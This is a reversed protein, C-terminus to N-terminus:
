PTLVINRLDGKIASEINKSIETVLRKRSEISAWGIHPTIILNKANLLRNNLEPPEKEMVDLAAGAIIENDLAHRLDEEVIIPGRAMNILFGDSKMKNLFSKNVLNKSFETLPMHISIIDSNALLDNLEYRKINDKYEVNKRKLAFINMGFAQCLEGVKSGIEGMGLIGINKNKLDFIPHTGLTFIDSKSWTLDHTSNNYKILNTSHALIFAMTLQAVSETSYGPVNSVTVNSKGTEKLDITNYGTASLAIHKLNPLSKIIESGFLVKNTIIIDADKCKEIVQEPQTSDFLKLDGLDSIQSFDIDGYDVTSADLFVIKM